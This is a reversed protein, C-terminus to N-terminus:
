IEEVPTVNKPPRLRFLRWIDHTLNLANPKAFFRKEHVEAKIYNLSNLMKRIKEPSSRLDAGTLKFELPREVLFALFCLM